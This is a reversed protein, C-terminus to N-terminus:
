ERYVRVHEEGFLEDDTDAMRRSDLATSRRASLRKSSSIQRHRWVGIRGGGAARLARAGEGAHGILVLAAARSIRALRDLPQEAGVCELHEVQARARALECARQEVGPM